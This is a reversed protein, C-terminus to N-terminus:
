QLNEVSHALSLIKLIPRYNAFIRVSTHHCTKKVWPRDPNRMPGTSHGWRQTATYGDVGFTLSPLLVNPASFDCTSSFTLVSFALVFSSMKCPRSICTSFVCTSNALTSFALVSFALVFKCPQFVCTRFVYTYRYISITSYAKVKGFLLLTVLSGVVGWM